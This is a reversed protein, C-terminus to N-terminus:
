EMVLDEDSTQIHDKLASVLHKAKMQDIVTMLCDTHTREPTKELPAKRFLFVVINYM